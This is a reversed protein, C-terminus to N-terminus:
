QRSKKLLTCVDFLKVIATKLAISNPSSNIKMENKESDETDYM